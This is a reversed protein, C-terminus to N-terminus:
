VADQFLRTSTYNDNIRLVKSEGLGITTKKKKMWPIFLFHSPLVSFFKFNDTFTTM